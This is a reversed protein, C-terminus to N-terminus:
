LSPIDFYKHELFLFREFLEDFQNYLLNLRIQDSECFFDPSLEKYEELSSIRDLVGRLAFDVIELDSLSKFM